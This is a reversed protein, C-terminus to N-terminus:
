IYTTQENAGAFPLADNLHNNKQLYQVYYLPMFFSTFVLDYKGRKPRSSLITFGGFSQSFARYIPTTSPAM